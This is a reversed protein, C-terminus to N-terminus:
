KFREFSTLFCDFKQQFNLSKRPNQTRISRTRPITFKTLCTDVMKRGSLDSQAVLIKEAVEWVGACGRRRQIIRSDIKLLTNPFFFIFLFTKVSKRRPVNKSSGSPCVYALFLGASFRSFFGGGLHSPPKMEIRGKYNTEKSIAASLRSFFGGGLHSSPKM